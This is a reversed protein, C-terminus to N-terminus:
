KRYPDDLGLSLSDVVGSCGITTTCRRNEMKSSRTVMWIFMRAISQEFGNRCWNSTVVVEYDGTDGHCKGRTMVNGM